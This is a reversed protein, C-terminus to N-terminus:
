GADDYLEERIIELRKVFGFPAEVMDGTHNVPVHYSTNTEFTYMTNRWPSIETDVTLEDNVDVAAPDIPSHFATGWTELEELFASLATLHNQKYFQAEDKLFRKRRMITLYSNGHAYSAISSMYKSFLSSDESIRTVASGVAHNFLAVHAVLGARQFLLSVAETIAFAVAGAVASLAIARGSGLGFKVCFVVAPIFSLLFVAAALALSWLAHRTTVRRALKDKMTKALKSFETRDATNGVPLEERLAFIKHSLRDLEADFDERQYHDLRSVQEPDYECYRRMREATQDLARDACAALGDLAAETREKMENWAQMDSFATKSTLGFQGGNLFIDKHAPLKLVVPAELKYDPLVVDGSIKQELERQISKQIFRRANLARGASEQLTDALVQRDLDVSLRHLKYAQLTSPDIQNTALLLVGTWVRFLDAIEKLPGERELEFFTFRCSSPYGNRRWFESSELERRQNWVRRVFEGRADQKSRLSVLIIESPPKADFHYRASLEQYAREDEENVQPRYIVRPAKGEERIQECVFSVAPAPVGGLMQTLRILPVPSERIRPEGAANELFDYPNDPQAQCAAMPSEDEVRVIVARWEERDRVMDYLEPVAADIVTGAELWRCVGLKGENIANLFLPYYRNFSEITKENQILVSFVLIM